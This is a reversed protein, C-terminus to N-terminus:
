CAHSESTDPFWGGQWGRDSRGPGPSRPGCPGRGRPGVSPSPGTPNTARNSLATRVRQLHSVQKREMSVRNQGHRFQEHSRGTGYGGCEKGEREAHGLGRRGLAAHAGHLDFAQVRHVGHVHAVAQLEPDAVAERVLAKRVARPLAQALEHRGLEEGVGVDVEAVGCAPDHGGHAHGLIGHCSGDFEFAVVFEVLLLELLCRTQGFSAYEGGGRQLPVARRQAVEVDLLAEARRGELGDPARGVGHGPADRQGPLDVLAVLDAHAVDHHFAVLLDGAVVDEVGHLGLLLAPPSRRQEVLVREQVVQLLDAREVALLAVQVCLHVRVPDEVAARALAQVHVHLHSFAQTIAAAAHVEGAVVEEVLALQAGLGHEVRALDDVAGLEIGLLLLDRGQVALFAPEEHLDVGDLGVAIRQHVDEVGDLFARRGSHALDQDLAVVLGAVLHHAAFELDERAVEVM